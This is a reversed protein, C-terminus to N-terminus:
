GNEEHTRNKRENSLDARLWRVEYAGLTLGLCGDPCLWEEGTLLDMWRRVSCHLKSEATEFRQPENTINHLCLVVQQQDLSERLLAFVRPTSFLVRQAASPHFASCAVRASIMHTFRQSIRYAPSTSDQLQAFLAPANITNRNISRPDKTNVPTDATVHAGIISPLYVAAVGKMALAIARSVLFRDIKTDTSEGQNDANIANYWPINLEYPTTTGDTNTRMSVLGGHAYTRDVLQQVEHPALINRVPLLGIGDHSDLFNFYTTTASPTRLAAAWRALYTCDGSHLTWLVLPPLAFNYVMHAENHGDGFYSINDEHPVNTETILGVPPAVTDMVARFFQILAHTQALHACSTGLERWLYTAADLRLIDAGRRVYYLLVELVRFLVKENRYNLDVQDPSFTTWVHKVGRLTPFATLLNSTRPRLILRLHDPSIAEKTNFSIFFGEYEPNGNLFERFWHSRSSVHNVVGDFMLRHTDGLRQIDDWTGLKPDVEEYDIVSFGRDSSYPFFPLIHVVNFTGAFVEEFIHRLAILPRQGPSHILDGYTIAVVDRETFRDVPNFQSEHELIAPTKHAAHVQLIREVEPYCAAAKEEGYLVSLTALLRQRTQPPIELLPKTYDPQELYRHRTFAQVAESSM